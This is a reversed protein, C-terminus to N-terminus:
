GDLM